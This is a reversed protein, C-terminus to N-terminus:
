AVLRGAAAGVAGFPANTPRLGVFAGTSKKADRLLVRCLDANFPWVLKAVTRAHSRLPPPRGILEDCQFGGLFPTHEGQVLKAAAPQGSVTHRNAGPIPPQMPHVAADVRNPVRVWRHLPQKESGDLCAPTVGNEAVERRGRVPPDHVPVISAGLHGHWSLPHSRLRPQSYM